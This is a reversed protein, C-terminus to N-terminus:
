RTPGSSRGGDETGAEWPRRRQGGRAGPSKGSTERLKLHGKRWASTATLDGRPGGLIWLQKHGVLSLREPDPIPRSQGQGGAGKGGRPTM